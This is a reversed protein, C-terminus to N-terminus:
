ATVCGGTAWFECHDERPSASKGRRRSIGYRTDRDRESFIIMAVYEARTNAGFATSGLRRRPGLGADSGVDVVVARRQERV